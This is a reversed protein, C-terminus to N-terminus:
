FNTYTLSFESAKVLNNSLLLKVMFQGNKDHILIKDLIIKRHILNMGHLYNIAYLLQRAIIKITNESIKDKNLQYWDLLNLKSANMILYCDNQSEYIELIKV